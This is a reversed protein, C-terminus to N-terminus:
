FHPSGVGTNKYDVNLMKCILRECLARIQYLEKFIPKYDDPYVGHHLINNRIKNILFEEKNELAELTMNPFLDLWDINNIRCCDILKHSFSKGSSNFYKNIIDLCSHWYILQTDIIKQTSAILFRDIIRIIENYISFEQKQLSNFLDSVIMHYSKHNKRYYNENKDEDFKKRIRRYIRKHKLLKDGSSYSFSVSKWELFEGELFSLIKFFDEINKLFKEEVMLNIPMTQKVVLSLYTQDILVKAKEKDEDLPLEAFVFSPVISLFGINTKYNYEEKEWPEQSSSKEKKESWGSLIGRTYHNTFPRRRAFISSHPIYASCHIKNHVLEDNLHEIITCMSVVFSATHGTKSNIELLPMGVDLIIEDMMEKSKIRLPENQKLSNLLFMLSGQTPVVKVAMRNTDYTNITLECIINELTINNSILDGVFRYQENFLDKM